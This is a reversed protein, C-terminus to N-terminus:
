CHQLHIKYLKEPAPYRQKQNSIEEPFSTDSYVFIELQLSKIQDPNILYSGM